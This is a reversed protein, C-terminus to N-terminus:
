CEHLGPVNCASYSSALPSPTLSFNLCTFACIHIPTAYTVKSLAKPLKEFSTFYVVTTILVFEPPSQQPCNLIPHGGWALNFHQGWLHSSVASLSLLCFILPVLLASEKSFVRISPLILPLLLFPHCLVLHNSPMKSDISMLKLLSWSINFSPFGPTSYDMPNCLTLCSQAVSCSGGCLSLPLSFYNESHLFISGLPFLVFCKVAEGCVRLPVQGRM